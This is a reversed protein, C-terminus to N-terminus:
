TSACHPTVQQGYIVYDLPILCLESFEFRGELSTGDECGFDSNASYLIHNVSYFGGDPQYINSDRTDQINCTTSTPQKATRTTAQTIRIVTM